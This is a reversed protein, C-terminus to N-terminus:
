DNAKASSDTKQTPAQYNVQGANYVGNKSVVFYYILGCIIGGIVIYILIKM